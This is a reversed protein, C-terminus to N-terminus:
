RVPRVPDERLFSIEVLLWIIDLPEVSLINICLVVVVWIKLVRFRAFPVLTPVPWAAVARVVRSRFSLSSPSFHRPMEDGPAPLTKNLTLERMYFNYINEIRFDPGWSM